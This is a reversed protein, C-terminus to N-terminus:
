PPDPDRGRRWPRLLAVTGVIFGLALLNEVFYLDEEMPLLLAAISSAAAVLLSLVGHVLALDALFAFVFFLVYYYCFIDTHAFIAGAGLVLAVWDRQRRVAFVLLALLVLDLARIATARQSVIQAYGNRWRREQEPPPWNQDQSWQNDRSHAILPRVGMNVTFPTDMLKRSNDVFGPEAANGVWADLGWHHGRGSLGCSLPVLVVAACISGLLFGRHSREIRRSAIWSWAVKVALGAIMFGPLVRLFAAYTLLFGGARPRDRRVMCLGITALALWDMRLFSGGIWWFRGPYFCAWFIMAACGARRGFAWFVFGWLVAILLPDIIALVFVDEAPVLNTLISGLANWVPTANYGHDNFMMQWVPPTLRGRFYAVDSRFSQWRAPTFEDRCDSRRSAIESASTRLNTRLDRILPGDPHPVQDDLDAIVTCDYLRTYGLERFYKSGVYYHYYDWIQVYGGGPQVQDDPYYFHGFNYHALYSLAAVAVLLRDAWSPPRSHAPRRVSFALWGFTSMGVFALAAKIVTVTREDLADWWSLLSV